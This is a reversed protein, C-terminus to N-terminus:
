PNQAHTLTEWGIFYSAGTPRARDVLRKTEPMSGGLRTVYHNYVMEPMPGLGKSVKGNCLWSPVAKGLEYAAHFEMAATLRQRGEAYLDLGQHRATEAVHVAAAFGWGTHGFDRCTEQALGNEFRSQGQWYRILAAKTSKNGNPPSKPTAGDSRVYIYAALRKRWTSVAKDFSVRDDLLVAIGVAADTMILEWNGNKNPAGKILTPLYVARLM